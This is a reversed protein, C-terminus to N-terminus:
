MRRIAGGNLWTSWATVALVMPLWALLAILLKAKGAAGHSRWLARLYRKHIRSSWSEDDTRLAWLLPLPTMLYARVERSRGRELWHVFRYTRRVLQDDGADDRALAGYIAPVDARLVDSLRLKRRSM